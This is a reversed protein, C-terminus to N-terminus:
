KINRLYHRSYVLLSGIVLGVIFGLITILYLNIESLVIAPESAIISFLSKNSVDKNSEKVKANLVTSIGDAIKNANEASPDYYSVVFNQAAYQRATFRNTFQDLNDIEYGIGATEYIQAIVAPTRLWSMVNQTFMEAGKLDYYSGYQYDASDTRNVLNIDFSIVAKYSDPRYTAYLFSVVAVAVALAIIFWKGQNFIKLHEKLEM